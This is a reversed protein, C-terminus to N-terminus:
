DPDSVEPKVAGQLIALVAKAVERSDTAEGMLAEGDKGTHEIAALKPHFFPAVAVAMKDRRDHEVTPDRMVRLMYDKPLEGGAAAAKRTEATIKNPVGPKRGAGERRGGNAM